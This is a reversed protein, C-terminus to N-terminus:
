PKNTNGRYMLALRGDKVKSDIDFAAIDKRTFIFIIVKSNNRLRKRLVRRTPHRRRREL